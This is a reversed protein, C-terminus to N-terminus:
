TRAGAAYAGVARRAQRSDACARMLEDRHSAGLALIEENIALMRAIGEADASGAAAANRLLAERECQLLALEEWGGSRALELMRESCRLAEDVVGASTM